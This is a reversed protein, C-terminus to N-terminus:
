MRELPVLGSVGHDKKKVAPQIMAVAKIPKAVLQRWAPPLDSEIKAPHTLACVQCPAPQVVERIVEGIDLTRQHREAELCHVQDSV